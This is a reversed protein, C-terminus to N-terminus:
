SRAAKLGIGSCNNKSIMTILCVDGTTEFSPIAPFVTDRKLVLVCIEGGARWIYM